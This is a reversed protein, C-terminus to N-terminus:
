SDLVRLMERVASTSAALEKKEKDALKLEIIQEVGAAGLVAPLNLYIDNQGYEGQARCSVSFVRKENLLISNIMMSIAAAPAYGASGTKMLGVIEAGGHKTREVAELLSEAGVIEKINQDGVTALSALAVMEDGHSGIVTARVSSHPVGVTESLFHIFRGSELLGGMGIVKEPAFGLERWTLDTMVDVPNTVVIVIANAALQKIEATVSRIIAANKSLLDTRSMGPSRPLGATIVVIDAGKVLGYDSDGAIKEDLGFIALAQAIDLAKGKALGEAIDVLVTDAIGLLAVLFATNAGVNGSGIVAVKFRKESM